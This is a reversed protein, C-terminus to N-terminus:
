MIFMCMSIYVRNGLTGNFSNDSQLGVTHGVTIRNYDSQLGVTSSVSINGVEALPNRSPDVADSLGALGCQAHSCPRVNDQGRCFERCPAVRTGSTRDLSLRGQYLWDPSPGQASVKYLRARGLAQSPETLRRSRRSTLRLVFVCLLSRTLPEEQFWGRRSVLACM